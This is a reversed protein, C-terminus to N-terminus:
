IIIEQLNTCGVFVDNGYDVVSSPIIVKTIKECSYFAYDGIRTISNPLLFNNLNKCNSFAFEEIATVSDNFIIGTINSCAFAYRGISYSTIANGNVTFSNPLVLETEEGIYALLTGKNNGFYSVVFGDKDTFLVSEEDINTHVVCYQPGVISVSSLNYIEYLKPCNGLSGISNLSNPIRLSILSLCISISYDTNKKKDGIM